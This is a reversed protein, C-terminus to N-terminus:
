LEEEHGLAGPIRAASGGVAQRFRDALDPAPGLRVDFRADAGPDLSVAVQGHREGDASALLLTLDGAPLRTM